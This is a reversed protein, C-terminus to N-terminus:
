RATSSVFSHPASQREGTLVPYSAGDPGWLRPDVYRLGPLPALSDVHQHKAGLSGTWGAQGFEHAPNTQAWGRPM